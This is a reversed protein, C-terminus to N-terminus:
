FSSHNISGGCCVSHPRTLAVPRDGRSFCIPRLWRWWRLAPSIITLNSLRSRIVPNRIFISLILGTIFVFMPMIQGHVVALSIFQCLLVVQAPMVCVPMLPRIAASRWSSIMRYQITFSLLWRTSLFALFAQRIFVRCIVFVM